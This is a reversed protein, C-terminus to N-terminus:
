SAYPRNGDDGNAEFCPFRVNVDRRNTPLGEEFACFYGLM